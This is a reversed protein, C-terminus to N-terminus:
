IDSLVIGKPDIDLLDPFEVGNVPRTLGYITTVKILKVGPTLWDSVAKQGVHYAGQDRSLNWCGVLCQETIYM